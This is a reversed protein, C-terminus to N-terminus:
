RAGGKKILEIERAIRRTEASERKMQEILAKMQKAEDAMQREIAADARISRLHSQIVMVLPLCCFLGTVAWGLTNLMPRQPESYASSLDSRVPVRPEVMETLHRSM